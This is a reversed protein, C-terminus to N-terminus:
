VTPVIPYADKIRLYKNGRARFVTIIFLKCSLYLNYSVYFQLAGGYVRCGKYYTQMQMEKASFRGFYFMSM